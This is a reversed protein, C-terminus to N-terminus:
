RQCVLQRVPVRLLGLHCQSTTARSINSGVLYTLKIEDEPVSFWMECIFQNNQGSIEAPFLLSMM